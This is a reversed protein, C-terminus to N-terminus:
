LTDLIDVIRVKLVKFWLSLSFKNIRKFLRDKIFVANFCCPDATMNASWPISNLTLLWLLNLTFIMKREKCGWLCQSPLWPCCYNCWNSKHFWLECPRGSISINFDVRKHGAKWTFVSQATILRCCRECSSIWQMGLSRVATYIWPFFLMNIILITCQYFSGFMFM